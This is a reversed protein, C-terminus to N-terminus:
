GGEQDSRARRIAHKWGAYREQIWLQEKGPLFAADQEWQEQIELKNGWLGAGLGALYIAGLATTEAIRPRLVPISLMDSQFQMLFDCASAGGDVKLENLRIGSDLQMAELV